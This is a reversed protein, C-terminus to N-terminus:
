KEILEPNDEAIHEAIEYYNVDSIFARAYSLTLGEKVEGYGEIAEETREELYESLAHIDEFTDGEISEEINDLVELNIRWTEYNSWGNYKRDDASKTQSDRYGANYISLEEANLDKYEKEM